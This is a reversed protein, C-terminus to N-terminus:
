GPHESAWEEAFQWYELCRQANSGICTDWLKPDNKKWLSSLVDSALLIPIEMQEIKASDPNFVEISTSHLSLQSQFADPMWRHLDREVNQAHKGWTALSALDRVCTETLGDRYAAAAYRQATAVHIEQATGNGHTENIYNHNFQKVNKKYSTVCFRYDYLLIFDFLRDFSMWSVGRSIDWLLERALAGSPETTRYRKQPAGAWITPPSM